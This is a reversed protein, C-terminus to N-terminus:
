EIEDIIAEVQEILKPIENKLVNWIIMYDINDYNHVIRNRLGRMKHWPLEPYKLKVEDSVRNSSEGIVELTRIVAFVSKTDIVFSKYDMNDVFSLSFKAYTLIDRFNHKNTRKM